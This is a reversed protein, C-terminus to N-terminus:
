FKFVSVLVEFVNVLVCFDLFFLFGFIWFFFILLLLFGCVFGCGRGCSCVRWVGARAWVCMYVGVCRVGCVWAGNVVCPCM